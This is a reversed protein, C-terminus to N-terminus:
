SSTSGLSESDSDLNLSDKPSAIIQGSLNAVQAEYLGGFGNWGAVSSIPVPHACSYCTVDDGTTTEFPNNAPATFSNGGPVFAGVGFEWFEEQFRLSTYAQRCLGTEVICGGFSLEHQRNGAPVYYIGTYIHDNPAVTGLNFAGCHIGGVDASGGVPCNALNIGLNTQVLGSQICSDTITAGTQLDGYAWLVYYTNNVLVTGDQAAFRGTMNGAPDPNCLENGQGAVVEPTNELGLSPQAVTTSQVFRYHTHNDDAGYYGFVVGDPDDATSTTTCHYQTACSPLQAAHAAAQGGIAMSALLTGSAVAGAVSAWRAARLALEELTQGAGDM